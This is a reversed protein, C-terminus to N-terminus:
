HGYLSTLLSFGTSFKGKRWIRWFSKLVDFPAFVEMVGRRWLNKISKWFIKSLNRRPACGWRKREKRTKLHEFFVDFLWPVDFFV